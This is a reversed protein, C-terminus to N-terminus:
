LDSNFLLVETKRRRDLGPSISGAAKNWKLIEAPVLDWSRALVKKRLTSKKLAGIGVNYTRSLIAAVQGPRELTPCLSVVSPLFEKLVLLRLLREAQEKSITPDVLSVKRGDEYYTAGYGITPIGAPCLYPKLRLGEFQRIVPLGLNLVEDSSIGM